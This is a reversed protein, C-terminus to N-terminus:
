SLRASIWRANRLSPAQRMQKEARPHYTKNGSRLRISSLYVARSGDWVEIVKGAFESGNDVTISTPRGRESVTM